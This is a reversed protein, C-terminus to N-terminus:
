ALWGGDILLSAGSTYSSEESALFLISRAVEEYRGERGMPVLDAARAARAAIAENTMAARRDNVIGELFGPCVCNARIGEHSHDRAVSRTLAILAAKSIGYVAERPSAKTGASSATSIISGGGAAVMVPITERVFLYASKLNVDIVKDWMEESTETLSTAALPDIAANNFLVDIRGFTDVAVRVAETATSALSVDGPVGVAQVGAATFDGVVDKLAQESWDVLVLRAGEAAFQRVTALGLGAASGTAVVVRDTFRATTATVPM